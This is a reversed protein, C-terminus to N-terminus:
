ARDQYLNTIPMRRDRGFAKPTIKIGPPAQRRKYENLDVMRVVRKVTEPDFGDAVISDAGMDQEVYRELIKDLIEYPPLTDTDKQGARLEASPPRELISVPIVQRLRNRWRALQYVLTKPVDKIVAFGGVMDGYLTCYGTALESKNGTALVLWGFKNSLAMILNGRIRAQLNEETVDPPHGRFLPSLRDIYAQLIDEIPIVHFEIGLNHALTAADRRTGESSFRSPMSVAAVRRPGLADVALVAVLASDIGGSLAIVTQRFGNKNVYDKLGTSLASYIEEMEDMAPELRPPHASPIDSPPLSLSVAASDSSPPRDPLPVRCYLIDDSFQKARAIIKGTADLHMSGGDFVLEDQGGVLNCYLLDAGLAAATRALIGHREHIRRRHYPSASINVLLNPHYETLSKTPPRDPHWSDECVHLAIRLGSIDLVLPDNGPSFVRQEDFVGYNPLLMKAYAALINGNHFVTATNYRHPGIKRPAGVICVCDAPLEEALRRIQAECDEMFHNKLILDEPPYASLAMEPFVILRAGDEAATRATRIIKDANPILAGVCTNIQVLAVGLSKM